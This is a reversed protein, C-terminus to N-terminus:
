INKPLFYKKGICCSKYYLKITGEGGIKKNMYILVSTDFSPKAFEKRTQFVIRFKLM